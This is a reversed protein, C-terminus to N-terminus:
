NSAKGERLAKCRECDCGLQIFVEDVRVRSDIGQSRADAAWADLTRQWGAFAEKRWKESVIRLLRERRLRNVADLWIAVSTVFAAACIWGLIPTM